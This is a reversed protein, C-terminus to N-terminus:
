KGFLNTEEIERKWKRRPKVKADGIARDITPTRGSREACLGLILNGMEGDSEEPDSHQALNGNNKSM